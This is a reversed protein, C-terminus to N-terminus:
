TLFKEEEWCLSQCCLVFQLLQMGQFLMDNIERRIQNLALCFHVLFHSIERVRNWKKLIQIKIPLKSLLLSRREM